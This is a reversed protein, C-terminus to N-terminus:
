PHTLLHTSGMGALWECLATPLMYMAQHVGPISTELGQMPLSPFIPFPPNADHGFAAM